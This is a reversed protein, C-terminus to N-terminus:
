KAAALKMPDKVNPYTEFEESWLQGDKKVVRRIYINSVIDRTDPDISVPGRPSEWAMGKMAAILAEGDSNGGTKKLAEYILHLGDYAGLSVFDPRFGNAKQIGAVYSKNLASDHAASYPGATIMSLMQDGMNNLDDDDTLDGPGIVKIGSKALGREAFQKAFIPAQTGPFYIFATDPKIDGIRQLFPAFDPNALPIRISEAIEGGVQKFRTTFATEAEVGPAWDNVLTVVRKSGNKAAWEALVWSQPALIFGARVFYPSKTTTISAGSSMVLTAKKSETVLPAIALATPTIGIGLIDVKQDVIMEQILRRANDAVGGDDRITIQIQRGAVTDGHQQMYFKLAAQLQRGVANFGAGTLPMSIGIKLPTEAGATHALLGSATTAAIGKLVTRRLM